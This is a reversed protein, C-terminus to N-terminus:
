EAIEGDKFKAMCYYTRAYSDSNEAKYLRVGLYNQLGCKPKNREWSLCIFFKCKECCLKSDTDNVSIEETITFNKKIKM